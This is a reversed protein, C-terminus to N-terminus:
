VEHEDHAWSAGLRRTNIGKNSHAKFHTFPKCLLMTLEIKLCKKLFHVQFTMMLDIFTLERKILERLIPSLCSHSLLPYLDWQKIDDLNVQWFFSFM